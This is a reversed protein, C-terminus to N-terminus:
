SCTFAVEFHIKLRATISTYNIYLKFRTTEQTNVRIYAVKDLCDHFIEVDNFLVGSTALV